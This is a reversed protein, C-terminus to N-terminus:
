KVGGEALGSILFRQAALYLLVAPISAIVSSSMLLGWIHQDSLKFSSIGITVTQESPSTTIVLAYLYENWAMTFAFTAVVAIGPAAIPMIIKILSQLRTCGDILAAEELSEPIAQFYSILMYCCYPVVITPYVLLLANKDDVLGLNSVLVYMPIFLIATPLLYTYIISKLMFKRGRYRLRTLSFSALISILLSILTVMVAVYLSNYLYRMFTTEQFLEKYHALTLNEPMLTPKSTYMLENPTM